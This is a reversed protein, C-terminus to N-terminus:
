FKTSANLSLVIYKAKVSSLGDFLLLLSENNNSNPLREFTLTDYPCALYITYSSFCLMEKKSLLFVLTETPERTMFNYARTLITVLM